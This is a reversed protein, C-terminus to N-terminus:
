LPARTLALSRGQRLLGQGWEIGAGGIGSVASFGRPPAASASSWALGALPAADHGSDM